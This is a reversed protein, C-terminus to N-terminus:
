AAGGKMVAKWLAARVASEAVRLEAEITAAPFGRREMVERRQKLTHLLHKEATKSERNLMQAAGRDVFRWGDRGQRTIPFAVLDGM